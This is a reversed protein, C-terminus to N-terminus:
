GVTVPAIERLRPVVEKAFLKIGKQGRRADHLGVPRDGRPPRLRRRREHFDMLQRYVTDPSGAFSSAARRRRSPASVSSPSRTRLSLGGDEAREGRRRWEASPRRSLDMTRSRCCSRTRADSLCAAARHPVLPWGCARTTTCL